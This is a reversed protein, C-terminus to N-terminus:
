KDDPRANADWTIKTKLDNLHTLPILKDHQLRGVVVGPSIQIEDAFSRITAAERYSRKKLRQYRAEPILTKSAFQDAEREQDNGDGNFEDLFTEKKGHLLIHGLEHFFSFWLHDSTQFRFSLQIVAKSGIWYAAGSVHSGPLHPVFVVALGSAACLSVLRPRFVEPKLLTLRRLEGLAAKLRREDYRGTELESAALEGKRLWASLSYRCAEKTHSKRFAPALVLPKNLQSFSAIGFFSLLARTQEVPDKVRQIWGFGAMEKLPFMKLTAAEERLQQESRLRKRALQYNQELELWFYAPLGLVLELELATEVTISRRGHLIENIKNAPRRMREALGAQTIGKTVLLERITAGPVIAVDPSYPRPSVSAM